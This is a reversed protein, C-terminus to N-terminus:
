SFKDTTKDFLMLWRIGLSLLLMIDLCTLDKFFSILARKSFIEFCSPLNFFSWFSSLFCFYNEIIVQSLM